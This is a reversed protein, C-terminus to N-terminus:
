LPISSVSGVCYLAGATREPLEQVIPKWFGTAAFGVRPLVWFAVFVAGFGDPAPQLLRGALLSDTALCPMLTRFRSAKM